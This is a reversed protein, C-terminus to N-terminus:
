VIHFHRWKHTTHTWNENYSESMLAPGCYINSESTKKGIHVLLNMRADHDVLRKNMWGNCLSFFLTYVNVECNWEILSFLDIKPHKMKWYNRIWINKSRTNTLHGTTWYGVILMLVIQTIYNWFKEWTKAWRPQNSDIRIVHPLYLEKIYCISTNNGLEATTM